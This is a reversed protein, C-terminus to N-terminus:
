RDKMGCKTCYKCIPIDDVNMKGLFDPLGHVVNKEVLNKLDHYGIHRQLEHWKIAEKIEAATMKAGHMPEAVGISVLETQDAAWQKFNELIQHNHEADWLRQHSERFRSLLKKAPELGEPLKLGFVMMFCDMDKYGAKELWEDDQLATPAKDGGFITVHESHHQTPYSIFNHLLNLAQKNNSESRINFNYYAKFAAMTKYGAKVLWEKKTQYELPLPLKLPHPHLKLGLNLYREDMTFIIHFTTNEGHSPRHLNNRPSLQRSTPHFRQDLAFLFIEALPNKRIKM